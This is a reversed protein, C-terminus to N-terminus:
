TKTSADVFGPMQLRAALAGMDFSTGAIQQVGLGWLFAGISASAGGWTPDDLWFLKLGSLITVIALVAMFGLDYMM